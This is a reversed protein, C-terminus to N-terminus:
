EIIKVSANDKCLLHFQIGYETGGWFDTGEVKIAFDLADNRNDFAYADSLKLENIRKNDFNGTKEDYHMWSEANISKFVYWKNKYQQVLTQNNASM